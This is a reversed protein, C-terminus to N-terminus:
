YHITTRNLQEELMRLFQQACFINGTHQLVPIDPYLIEWRRLLNHLNRRESWTFHWRDLCAFYDAPTSNVTALECSLQQLSKIIEDIVDTQNAILSSIASKDPRKVAPVSKNDSIVKLVHILECTSIRSAISFFGAAEMDFLNEEYEGSPQDMTKLALSACSVPFVIQPYWTSNAAMDHIQHVLVATGIDLSLHGATGINLWADSSPSHFYEHTYCTAAAANIKGPGSVTLTIGTDPNSYIRFLGPDTNQTLRYRALLPIAECHLACILHIM